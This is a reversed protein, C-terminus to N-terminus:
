STKLLSEAKEITKNINEHEDFEVAAAKLILNNQSDIPTQNVINKLKDCVKQAQEQSTKPLAIIFKAHELRVFLDSERINDSFRHVLEQLLKQAFMEQASGEDHYQVDVVILSLKTKDRKSLSILSEVVDYFYRMNHGGSMVDINSIKEVKNLYAEHEKQLSEFEQTQKAYKSKLTSLEEKFRAKLGDMENRLKKILADKKEIEEKLDNNFFM